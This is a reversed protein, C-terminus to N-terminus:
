TAAGGPKQDEDWYDYFNFWNLPADRAHTELRTAYHRIWGDVAVGRERRSIDSLSPLAEIHIDYRNGGRYLALCLVAPAGTVAALLGPGAPMWATAGLFECAVAKDSEGMRDGLLGVMFGSDIADRVSLLADISGLPIVTDAVERNLEGLLSTIVANQDPYMLVKLPLNQIRVGLARLAEFSGLHAGVLLCGRRSEVHMELFRLGTFRLDFQDLHGALFYVRDLITAAFCHFHRAVELWNASRGLVRRLYARSARRQTGATCLYYLTIPYLLVRTARRGMCLALARILRMSFLTGREGHRRWSRSLAGSM